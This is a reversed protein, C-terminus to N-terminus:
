KWVLHESLLKIIPIDIQNLPLIFRPTDYKVVFIVLYVFFIISYLLNKRFKSPHDDKPWQYQPKGPRDMEGM